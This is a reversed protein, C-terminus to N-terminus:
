SPGHAGSSAALKEPLSAFWCCSFLPPTVTESSCSSSFIFNRHTLKRLVPPIQNILARKQFYRELKQFNLGHIAYTVEKRQKRVRFEQDFHPSHYIRSTSKENKRNNDGLFSTTYEHLDNQHMQRYMHTVITNKFQM